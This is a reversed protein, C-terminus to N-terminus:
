LDLHGLPEESRGLTQAFRRLVLELEEEEALEPLPVQRPMENLKYVYLSTM